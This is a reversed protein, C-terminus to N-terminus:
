GPEIQAKTSAQRYPTYCGLIELKLSQPLSKDITDILKITLTSAHEMTSSFLVENANPNMSYIYDNM